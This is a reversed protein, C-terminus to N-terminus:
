VCRSADFHGAGGRVEKGGGQAIDVVTALFGAEGTREDHESRQVRRHHHHPYLRHVRTRDIVHYWVIEDTLPFKQM